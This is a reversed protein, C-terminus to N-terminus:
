YSIACAKRRAPWSRSWPLRNDPSQAEETIRWGAVSITCHGDVPPCKTDLGDVDDNQYPQQRPKEPARDSRHDLLAAGSRLFNQGFRLHLAALRGVRECLDLSGAGAEFLFVLRDDGCSTLGCLLHM